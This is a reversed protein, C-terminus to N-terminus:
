DRQSLLPVLLGVLASVPWALYVADSHVRLPADAHAGVAQKMLEASPDSPGFAEGTLRMLVAAGACGAVVFLVTVVLDRKRLFGYALGAVFAVAGAIVAYWGDVAFIKSLQLEDQGVQDEFRIIQPPTVVQAWVLGCVIGLVAFGGVIVSLDLLTSLLRGRARGTTETPADEANDEPRPPAWSPDVV